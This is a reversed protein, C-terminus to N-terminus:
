ETAEELLSPVGIILQMYHKTIAYTAINNLFSIYGQERFVLTVWASQGLLCVYHPHAFYERRRKGSQRYGLNHYLDCIKARPNPGCQPGGNTCNTTWNLYEAAALAFVAQFVFTPLLKVM